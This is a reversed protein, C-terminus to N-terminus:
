GGTKIMNYKVADEIIEQFMNRSVNIRFSLIQIIGYLAQKTALESLDFVRAKLEKVEGPNLKAVVRSIKDNM